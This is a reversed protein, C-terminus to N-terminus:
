FSWDRGEENKVASGHYPTFTGKEKPKEYFVYHNSGEKDAILYGEDIFKHITRNLTTRAIGWDAAASPSIALPYNDQNKAFYLWITFEANSLCNMANRMAELNIKAYLHNQDCPEKKITAIKQNPVTNPM